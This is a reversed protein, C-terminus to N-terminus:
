DKKKDKDKSLKDLIELIKMFLRILDTYVMMSAYVHDDLTLLENKNNMIMHLDIVLYFGTIIVQAIAILVSDFRFFFCSILGVLMDAVLIQLLYRPLSYEKSRNKYAFAVISAFVVATILAACVILEM